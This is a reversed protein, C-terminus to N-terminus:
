EMNDMLEQLEDPVTPVPAAGFEGVEPLETTEMLPPVVGCRSLSLYIFFIFVAAVFILIVLASSKSMPKQAGDTANRVENLRKEKSM